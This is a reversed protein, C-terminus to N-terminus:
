SVGMVGKGGELRMVRGDKGDQWRVVRGGKEGEWRMVREGKGGEWRAVRGGVFLVNWFLLMLGEIDGWMTKLLINM